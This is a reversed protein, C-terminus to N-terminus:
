STQGDLLLPVAIPAPLGGDPLARRAAHPDPLGPIARYPFPVREADPPAFAAPDVRWTPRNGESERVTDPVLPAGEEAGVGRRRLARYLRRTEERRYRWDGSVVSQCVADPGGLARVLANLVPGLDIPHTDSLRTEIVHLADEAEEDLLREADAPTGRIREILDSPHPAFHGAAMLYLGLARVGEEDTLGALATEWVDRRANSFHVGYEEALMAALQNIGERTM